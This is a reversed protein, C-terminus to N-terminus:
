PKVHAGGGGGGGGHERERKLLGGELRRTKNVRDKYFKVTSKSKGRFFAILSFCYFM